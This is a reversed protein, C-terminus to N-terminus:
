WRVLLSTDENVVSSLSCKKKNKMIQRHIQRHVQRSKIWFTARSNISLYTIFAWMRNTPKWIACQVSTDNRPFSSLLVVRHVRCLSQFNTRLGDCNQERAKQPFLDLDSDNPCCWHGSDGSAFSSGRLSGLRRHTCQKKQPSRHHYGLLLVWSWQMTTNGSDYAVLWKTHRSRTRWDHHFHEAVEFSGKRGSGSSQIAAATCFFAM